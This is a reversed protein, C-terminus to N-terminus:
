AARSAWCRACGGVATPSQGFAPASEPLRAGVGARRVGRRRARVARADPLRRCGLACRDDLRRDSGSCATRRGLAIATALAYLPGLDLVRWDARSLAFVVALVGTAAMGILLSGTAGLARTRPLAGAIRRMLPLSAIAVVAGPVAGIAVMGAAAITALLQSAMKGVFLRQGAAAVVAVVLVGVAVALVGAAVARDREPEARLPGWGPPRAGAIASVVLEAIWGAIIGAAGYLGVTLVLAGTAGGRSAALALDVVGAGLVGALVSAGVPRRLSPLQM